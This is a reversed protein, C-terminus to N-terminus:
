EVVKLPAVPVAGKETVLVVFTPLKFASKSSPNLVEVAAVPVVIATLSADPFKDLALVAVLMVPVPSALAVM